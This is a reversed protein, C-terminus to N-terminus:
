QVFQQLDERVKVDINPLAGQRIKVVVGNKIYYLAPMGFPAFKSVVSNDTDNHVFFRLGLSRQFELGKNLEKDTDVGVIAVKSANLGMSNLLPLEKKCSVCWSAFIDVITVKNPDINLKRTVDSDIRDGVKYAFASNSLLLFSSFLFGHLAKSHFKKLM